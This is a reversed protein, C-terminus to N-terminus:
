NKALKLIRQLVEERKEAIRDFDMSSVYYKEMEDHISKSRRIHSVAKNILSYFRTKVDDLELTYQSLIEEQICIDFNIM